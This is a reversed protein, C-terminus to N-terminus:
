GYNAFLLNVRDQFAPALGAFDDRGWNNGANLTTMAPVGTCDPAGFATTYESSYTANNCIISAVGVCSFNMTAAGEVAPRMVAWVSDTSGTWSSYTNFSTNLVTQANRNTFNTGLSVNNPISTNDAWGFAPVHCTACSILRPTNVAYTAGRNGQVVIGGSFQPDWFFKQGLTAAAANNVYQNSAEGDPAKYILTKIIALETDSFLVEKDDQAVCASLFLTALLAVLGWGAKPVAERVCPLPRPHPKANLPSNKDLYRM